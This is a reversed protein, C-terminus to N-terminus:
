AYKPSEARHSTERARNLLYRNGWDRRRKARVDKIEPPLIFGERKVTKRLSDLAAKCAEDETQVQRSVGIARFKEQMAFNLYNIEVVWDDFTLVPPATCFNM